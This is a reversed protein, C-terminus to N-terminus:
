FTFTFGGLINIGYVPYNVFRQYRNNALNNMQIFASLNKSYRYDIGLNLDVFPDLKKEYYSPEANTNYSVLSGFREGWYFLDVKVLFKDSMNYSLNFKTEFQPLSYAKGLTKMQYSNLKSMIGFRVKENWQYNLELALTTLKAKGTDYSLIQNAKSSDTTYTVLNEISASSTSLLFSTQAGLEGKLGGYVEIKTITNKLPLATVFPNDSNISRYTNPKLGGTLGVYISLKKPVLTYGGEAKPFFHFKGGLSDSSITSNFGGQLYHDTGTLFLQPNLDFYIRQYNLSNNDALTIKNNNLRFGAQLEFPFTGSKEQIITKLQADNELFFDTNNFHYYNLDVKYVLDGSDKAYNKFNVKGDFLNYILKPDTALQLIDNPSGYLNVKNRHYYLESGLVGKELFKNAYGHITNQSFNNYDKDGNASLHKFFVGAQYEKNRVTNLYFEGLPMLYNGFGLKVYNGKLKPLLMTGMSLPKITYINPNVSFAHAPIQYSFDQKEYTPKEPNPNVPIKIAESLTPKFNKIVDIQNDKILSDRVQAKVSAATILILALCVTNKYHTM